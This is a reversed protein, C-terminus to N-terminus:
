VPSSFNRAGGLQCFETVGTTTVVDFRPLFPLAKKGIHQSQSLTAGTQPM